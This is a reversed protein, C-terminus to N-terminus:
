SSYCLVRLNVGSRVGTNTCYSFNIVVCCNDYCLLVKSSIGCYLVVFVMVSVQTLVTHFTGTCGVFLCEM